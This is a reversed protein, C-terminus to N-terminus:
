TSARQALDFREVARNHAATLLPAVGSTWDYTEKALRYADETSYSAPLDTGRLVRIVADAFAPATDAILLHRDAVVDLGEAGISTSVVPVGAAFAELIKLRTGGGAHLPVITVSAKSVHPVVNEVRGTVSVSSSSLRRLDEPPDAGVIEVTANPVAAMVLPHVHEIYWRAGDANPGHRMAGVFVIRGPIRGANQKSGYATIDVGNPVVAAPEGAVASIRAADRESTALNLTVSRWAAHELRRVKRWEVNNFVRRPLSPSSRAVRELLEHEINQNDLVTPCAHLPRYRTMQAFEYHVLGIHRTMFLRDMVAQMQPNWTAREAFSLPSLASQVQTLRKSWGAPQRMTSRVPVATVDCLEGLANVADTESETVLALVIVRQDRALARIFEYIRIAGGFDAPWPLYPTVVLVDRRATV